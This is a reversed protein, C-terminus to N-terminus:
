EENGGAQRSLEKVEGATKNKISDFGVPIESDEKDWDYRKCKPCAKPRELKSPWEYQCKKCKHKM